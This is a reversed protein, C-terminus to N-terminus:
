LEIAKVLSANHMAAGTYKNKVAKVEAPLSKIMANMQQMCTGLEAETYGTGACCAANWSGVRAMRLALAVASAAIVSPPQKVVEHSHMAVEALYSALKQQPAALQAAKAARALFPFITPVSIQFKLANLMDREMGRVEKATFSNSGVYVLDRLLPAWQDEFKSAVLLSTAAVLTLKDKAVLTSALFRDAVNVALFLTEQKLKFKKHVNLIWNVVTARMRTSLHKSNPGQGELYSAPAMYKAQGADCLSALVLRLRRRFPPRVENAKFYSMIDNIYPTVQPEPPMPSTGCFPLTSWLAGFWRGPGIYRAVDGDGAARSCPQLPHPHVQQVDKRDRSSDVEVEPISVDEVSVGAVSAAVTAKASGAM